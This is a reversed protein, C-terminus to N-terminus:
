WFSYKVETELKHNWDDVNTSEVKGKVQFNGFNVKYGVEASEGTDFDFGDGFKGYEAYFVSGLDYGLRVTNVTDDFSGLNNFEEFTVDNEYKVYPGAFAALPAVCLALVLASKKM